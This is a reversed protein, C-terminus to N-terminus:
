HRGGRSPAGRGGSQGSPGRHVGGKHEYREVHRQPHPYYYYGYPNSYYPYYYYPTPALYGFSDPYYLGNGAYPACAALAVLIVM